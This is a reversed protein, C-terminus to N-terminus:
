LIQGIEQAADGCELFIMGLNVNTGALGVFSANNGARIAIINGNEAQILTQRVAGQNLQQASRSALSLLGASIAGVRNSDINSSLVSGMVLGDNSVVVAGVMDTSENVVRALVAQVQESKSAMEDKEETLTLLNQLEATDEESLGSFLDTTQDATEEVSGKEDLYRLGEMLLFDWSAEIDRVPPPIDREVVFQGTQWGLLEYVVEEGQKILTGNTDVMLAHCLQRSDLYLRIITDHQQLEIQAQINDQRLSQILTAASMERLNGTIAM